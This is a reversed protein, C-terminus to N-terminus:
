QRRNEEEGLARTKPLLSDGRKAREPGLAKLLFQFSRAIDPSNITYAQSELVRHMEM